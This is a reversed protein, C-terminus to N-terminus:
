AKVSGAATTEPDVDRKEADEGNKGKGANALRNAEETELGTKYDEHKKSLTTRGIGFSFLLGLFLMCTYFIWMKSLSDALAVRVVERQSATLSHIASASGSSGSIVQNIISQSIGAAEFKATHSQVRNQIIVGGIVVSMSSSLNRTFGFTATGAATDSPTVKSQMAILPAQFNPGLGLGAIIQFIVIRPWSLYAPLDILLGFGLTALALGIYILELYIGTKMIFTGTIISLSALVLALPLFWVASHIPTAGLVNQFYFPLFYAAAVFAFGHTSAVGLVALRDRRKFLRLPILPYKAVKWEVLFFIAFTVVAFVLLCIVIASDWPYSVGGYQLGLLLMLVAGLILFTGLWDIARIGDWLKTRPNHVKLFFLLALFAAGDCPLNIYFCWRWSVKEALAGGISPGAASATAWVMGIIGLYKGRERLSVLDALTINVLVILGGGGGGQIARGAILMGVSNSLACILSGVFFVVNAALLIPKRGFVDSMKAWLPTISSYTLLYASGIWSYATQSAEFEATINPLATTVVAVDLAALFTAMGLAVTIIAMSGKKREPAAVNNGNKPATGDQKLTDTTANIDQPPSNSPSASLNQPEGHQIQDAPTQEVTHVGGDEPM